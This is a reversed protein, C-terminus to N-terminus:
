WDILCFDVLNTKLFVRCEERKLSTYLRKRTFVQTKFHTILFPWLMCLTLTMVLPVPSLNVKNLHHHICMATPKCQILLCLHRPMAQLMPWQHILHIQDWHRRMHHLLHTDWLHRQRWLLHAQWRRLSRKLVYYCLKKTLM